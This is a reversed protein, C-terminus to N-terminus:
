GEIHKAVCNLGLIYIYIYMYIFTAFKLRKKEQDSKALSQFGEFDNRKKKKKLFFKQRFKALLFVAAM